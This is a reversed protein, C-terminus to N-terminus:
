KTRIEEMKHKVAYLYQILEHLESPYLIRDPIDVNVLEGTKLIRIKGFDRKEFIEISENLKGSGLDTLKKKLKHKKRNEKEIRSAVECGEILKDFESPDFDMNPINVCFHEGKEGVKIEALLANICKVEIVWQLEAM